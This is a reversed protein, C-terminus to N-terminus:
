SAQYSPYLTAFFCIILSFIAVTLFFLPEIKVPFESIPYVDPDFPILSKIAENTKLLYCIGYGAITGLLTGIFGIIMGDTIFIRM